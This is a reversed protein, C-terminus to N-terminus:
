RSFGKMGSSLKKNNHLAGVITVPPGVSAMSFIRKMALNELSICGNTFTGAGGGHIEILGGIGTKQPILGKEKAQIFHKMDERNPYNLLLARYYRSGPM